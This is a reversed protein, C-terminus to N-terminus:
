AAIKSSLEGVLLPGSRGASCPRAPKLPPISSEEAVQDGIDVALRQARDVVVVVCTKRDGAGAAVAEAVAVHDVVAEVDADGQRDAAAGGVVDPSHGVISGSRGRAVRGVQGHPRQGPVVRVGVCGAVEGQGVYRRCRRDLALQHDRVEAGVAVRQRGRRRVSGVEHLGRRELAVVVPVCPHHFAGGAEVGLEDDGALRERRDDEAVHVRAGVRRGRRCRVTDVAHRRAADRADDIGDLDVDRRDTARGLVPLDPAAEGAALDVLRDVRWPQREGVKVDAVGGHPDALAVGVALEGDGVNGVAGIM